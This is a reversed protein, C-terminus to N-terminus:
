CINDHKIMGECWFASADRLPKFRKDYLRNWLNNPIFAQENCNNMRFNKKKYDDDWNSSPMLENSTGFKTYAGGTIIGPTNL